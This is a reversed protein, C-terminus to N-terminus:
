THLDHSVGCKFTCKKYAAQLGRSHSQASELQYLHFALMGYASWGTM